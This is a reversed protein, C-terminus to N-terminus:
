RLRERASAHLPNIGVADRWEARAKVMDGRAAYMEGLQYHADANGGSIENVMTFQSIAAETDGLELYASGLLLRAKLAVDEDKSNEICQVLYARASEYEGLGIYSQAITLLRLDSIAESGSGSPNLSM